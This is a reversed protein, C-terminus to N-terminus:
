FTSPNACRYRWYTVNNCQKLYDFNYNNFAFIFIVMLLISYIKRKTSILDLSKVLIIIIIPILYLIIREKLPYLRLMACIIVSYLTLLLHANYKKKCKKIILLIGLIFLIIIAIYDICPDFIFIINNIIIDINNKLNTTIFGPNWISSAYQLIIERQPKLAIFYYLVTMVFLPIQIKLLKLFTKVSHCNFLERLFWGATIFYTPLSILPSVSTIICYFIEKKPTINKITIRYLLMFLVMTVLVDTSYQKFEQAYFILQLNIAFLINAVIISWKKILFIKSFKYFVPIAIISVLFPLFRMAIEKIGFISIIFKEVVLFIPPASQGYWLGQFLEIYKLKYVNGFLSCEDYWTPRCFLYGKLRLYFACLMILLITISYIINKKNKM